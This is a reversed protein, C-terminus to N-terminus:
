LSAFTEQKANPATDHRCGLKRLVAPDTRNELPRVSGDGLLFLTVGLHWGGFRNAPAEDRPHSPITPQSSSVPALRRSWNALDGPQQLDALNNPSNLGGYYYSGDQERGFAGDQVAKEGIFVTNSLGDLVSAFSTMSRYERAGIDRGNITAPKKTANFIRSVLMAADWTRPVAPDLAAGDARSVCAYDGVSCKGNATLQPPSRRAPCFYTWFSVKRASIHDPLHIMQVPGAPRRDRNVAPVLPGVLDGSIPEGIDFLDYVNQQELFPILLIVWAAYDRPEACPSNDPTIYAPCIEQRIDHFNQIGLGIQKLNNECQTRRASERSRQVAPVALGFVIALLTVTVMLEMLTFARRPVPAVRM